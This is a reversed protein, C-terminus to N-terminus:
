EQSIIGKQLAYKILDTTTHLNLKKMMHAKHTEVTKVSLCLQNAVQQNTYGQAVLKLVEQERQSLQKYSDAVKEKLRGNSNIIQSVLTKALSSRAM